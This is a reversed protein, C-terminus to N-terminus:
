WFPPNSLPDLLQGDETVGKVVSTSMHTKTRRVLWEGLEGVM